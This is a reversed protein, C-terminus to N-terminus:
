SRKPTRPQRWKANPAREDLSVAPPRIARLRESPSRVLSLAGFSVLLARRARCSHRLVEVDGTVPPDLKLLPCEAWPSEIGACAAGCDM